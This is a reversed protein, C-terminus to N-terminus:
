VTWGIIKSARVHESGPSDRIEQMRKTWYEGTEGEFWPDGSPAFRWHRLLDMYTMGDIHAKNEQTLRM